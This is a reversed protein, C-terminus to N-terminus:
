PCLFEHPNNNM